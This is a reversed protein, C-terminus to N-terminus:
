IKDKIFTKVKKNFNKAVIHTYCNGSDIYCTECRCSVLDHICKSEIIDGCILWKIRM